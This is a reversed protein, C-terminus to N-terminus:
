QIKSIKPYYRFLVKAIIKDRYVYTNSWRRADMSYNRNDGMVFYADEPVEYPGFSGMMDEKLYPEEMPEESGNIYVKGNVITVEDGPLGIIRKVFLVSEDDPYKFIIIDGREPDNILYSLRFGIVRDNTMITNEMSGSPVHSNAIIFSNIFISVAATIVIIQLWSFLESKWNTSDQTEMQEDTENVNQERM